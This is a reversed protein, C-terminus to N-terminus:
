NRRETWSNSASRITLAPFGETSSQELALRAKLLPPLWVIQSYFSPCYFWPTRM